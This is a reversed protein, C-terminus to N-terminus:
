KRIFTKLIDLCATNIENINLSCVGNERYACFEWCGGGIYDKQKCHESIYLLDKLSFSLSDM